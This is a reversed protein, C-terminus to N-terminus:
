GSALRPLHSQRLCAALLDGLSVSSLPSSCSPIPARPSRRGRGLDKPGEPAPGAAEGGGCGERDLVEQRSLRLLRWIARGVEM